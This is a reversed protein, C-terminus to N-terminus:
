VPMNGHKKSPMVERKGSLIELANIIRPRTTEPEIIDDVFGRAAAKYPNAFKDKYEEIKQQRTGIPDISAEIEKKFIINAAGDPGMVAIEATPWAFVLDAGLHKSSMAIYAGGYAKRTIINIKPVTAQSYAYLLKAGHRIIGGYEQSVGPLYGPVDTFTVIPINFADCFRIFRAAKDSANIDLCGAMVLPQNAIIGTSIGNFRGFGVIINESFHSHIEFFDNNDVVERIINKMDYPKNPNDPIIDNLQPSLRNLDDNCEVVYTEELNNSPLFSLLRRIQQLCEEENEAMFHAVGSKTNHTEAGGLEEASVDEGTVAKIVQPGTVFMKSTDKVMFIFDTIAPSYVAGGACPGMIASIQPIVGSAKTNRIFIEGYGGLADIGEQIRAGGSDNMCIIPAGMKMAMDLVKCIKRAHMEGLSGGIVTFDQAYVFVLRGDITGYGTVVGDGNAVTNQMDFDICRHEVFADIEAFSSEDLLKSIRERATLKNSSHQKEIKDQGGGQLIDLKKDQMQRIKDEVNM